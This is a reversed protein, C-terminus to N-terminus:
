LVNGTKRVYAPQNKKDGYGHDEEGIGHIDHNSHSLVLPFDQVLGYGLSIGKPGDNDNKGGANCILASLTDRPFSEHNVGDDEYSDARRDDGLGYGIQIQIFM